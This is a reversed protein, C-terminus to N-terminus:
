KRGRDTEVITAMARDAEQDIWRRWAEVPILVRRGRRVHPLVGAQAMQYARASTVRLRDAVERISLYLRDEGTRM